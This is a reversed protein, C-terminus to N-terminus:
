KPKIRISVNGKEDFEFGDVICEVYEDGDSDLYCKVIDGIKIDASDDSFKGYFVASESNMRDLFMSKDKDM